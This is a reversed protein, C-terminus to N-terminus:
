TALFSLLCKKQNLKEALTTIESICIKYNINPPFYAASVLFKYKSATTVEATITELISKNDTELDQRRSFIYNSHCYIAVGGGRKASRTKILPQHYNPLNINAHPHWTESVTIISPYDIEKVIQNIESIRNNLSQANFSLISVKHAQILNKTQATSLFPFIKKDNKTNKDSSDNSLKSLM